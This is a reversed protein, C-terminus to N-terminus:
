SRGLDVLGQNLTGEDVYGNWIRVIVGAKDILILEPPYGVQLLTSVDGYAEPVKYDYVLFAYGDFSSKLRNLTELVSSDDANGPVYFLLVIPKQGYV